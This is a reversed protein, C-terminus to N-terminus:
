RSVPNMAPRLGWARRARISRRHDGRSRAQLLGAALVSGAGGLDSYPGSQDGLVGIKISKEGAWAQTGALVAAIVVIRLSKVAEEGGQANKNTAQAARRQFELRGRM